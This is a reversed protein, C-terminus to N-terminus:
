LFAIDQLQKMYAAVLVQYDNPFTIGFPKLLKPVHMHVLEALGSNLRLDNKAYHDKFQLLVNSHDKTSMYSKSWDKPDVLEFEFGCTKLLKVYHQWSLYNPNHVNYINFNNKPKIKSLAVISDSVIDVPTMEVLFESNPGHALQICSKTLMLFHNKNPDMIGRKLDGIINGPRFINIPLKLVMSAKELLYESVWKTQIYGIEGMAKDKEQEFRNCQNKLLAIDLASVYQIYKQKVSNALKIVEITGLVNAKRLMDYTYIHNVFAGCHYISDVTQSLSDYINKQLGFKEKSLDAEYIKIRNFDIATFGYDQLSSKLRESPNENDTSRVLCHVITDSKMKLLGSLLYAGLFGNAGTLLINKVDNIAVADYADTKLSEMNFFLDDELTNEHPKDVAITYIDNSLDIKEM